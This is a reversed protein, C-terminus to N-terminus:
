EFVLEIELAPKTISGFSLGVCSVVCIVTYHIINLANIHFKNNLKIYFKHLFESPLECAFKAAGHSISRLSILM